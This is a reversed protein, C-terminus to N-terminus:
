KGLVIVLVLIIVWIYDKKLQDVEQRLEKYKREDKLFDSGPDYLSGLINNAVPQYAKGKMKHMYFDLDSSSEGIEEIKKRMREVVHDFSM